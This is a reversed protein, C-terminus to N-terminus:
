PNCYNCRGPDATATDQRERTQRFSCKICGYVDARVEQTSAGCDACPLGKIRDVIGFAPTGCEPCLSALKAVLDEAACRINKMRTPNAHARLDNELFVQGNSSQALASCFAYELEQWNSLGKRVRRDNPGDPRVVMHHLPFGAEVVFAKAAAWDHAAVHLDKPAGQAIGVVELAREDDIFILYELNWPFMGVFPDAGFSGESALGFPLGALEMGIRAKKRAAEIQSGDRPIDRTFTGLRDTDYGTVLEVQCGHSQALVPQIVKEKGHMTLLAIKRGAYISKRGEPSLAKKGAQLKPPRANM